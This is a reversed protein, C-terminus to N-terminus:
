EMESRVILCSCVVLWENTGKNYGLKKAAAQQESSLEDWDLDESDPEGEADWISKTWGLTVYAAQIDAPLESFIMTLITEDMCTRVYKWDFDNYKADPNGM